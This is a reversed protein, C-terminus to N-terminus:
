LFLKIIGIRIQFGILVLDVDQSLGFVCELLFEIGAIIVYLPWHCCFKISNPLLQLAMDIMVFIFIGPDLLLKGM